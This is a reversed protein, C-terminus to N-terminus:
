ESKEQDEEFDTKREICNWRAESNIEPIFHEDVEEYLSRAQPDNDKRSSLIGLFNKAERTLTKTVIAPRLTPSLLPYSVRRRLSELQALEQTSEQTMPLAKIRLIQLQVLKQFAVIRQDNFNRQSGRRLCDSGAPAVPALPAVPEAAPIVPSGEHPAPSSKCGVLCLFVLSMKFCLIKKM